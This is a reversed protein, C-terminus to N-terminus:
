IIDYGKINTFPNQANKIDQVIDKLTCPTVTGSVIKEFLHQATARETGLHAAAREGSLVIEIYYETGVFYSACLRYRVLAEGVRCEEECLIQVRYIDEQAKLYTTTM